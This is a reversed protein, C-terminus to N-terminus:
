RVENLSDVFVWHYFCTENALFWVILNNIIELKGQSIDLILYKLDERMKDLDECNKNSLSSAWSMGNDRNLYKRISYWKSKIKLLKRQFDYDSDFAEFIDRIKVNLRQHYKYNTILYNSIDFKKDEWQKKTIIKIDNKIPHKKLDVLMCRLLFPTSDNLYKEVKEKNIEGKKLDYIKELYKHYEKLDIEGSNYWELFEKKLEKKERTTYNM